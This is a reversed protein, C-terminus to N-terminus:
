TFVFGSDAMIERILLDNKQHLRIEINDLKTNQIHKTTFLNCVNHLQEMSTTIYNNTKYM